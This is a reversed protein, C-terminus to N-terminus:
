SLAKLQLITMPKSYFGKVFPFSLSFKRDDEDVSSTLVYVDVKTKLGKYFTNLKKLFEWGSLKPMSLDLLIIDPLEVNLRLSKLVERGDDVCDISEFIPNLESMRQMIMRDLPNDDIMIVKHMILRKNQGFSGVATM